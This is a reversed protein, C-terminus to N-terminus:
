GMSALLERANRLHTKVGATEFCDIASTICERAEADRRKVQHLRALGLYGEGASGIAGMEEWMRIAETFHAQSVAPATLLNRALFGLNRLVTTTRVGRGSDVMSLFVNGLITEMTALRLMAHNERWWPSAEEIMRMGETLEGLACKVLGLLIVSPTLTLESGRESSLEIVQGLYSGAEEFRGLQICAISLYVRPHTSPWPEPSVEISQQFCEAATVYDGDALCAEGKVWLGAALARVSPGSRALELLDEAVDFTAAADGKTWLGFGLACHAETIWIPDAALEPIAKRAHDISEELQGMEALTNALWVRACAETHTDGLALAMDLGRREHKLAQKFRERCDLTIGYIVQYMAHESTVGLSEALEEHKQLLAELERMNGRDYIVYGWRHLVEVLLRDEEASRDKDALMEYAQRYFEYSEEVAHRRFCKEASKMLWHVARDTAGALRYHIALTESFEPLRDAFFSELARGAREHLERRETRLLGAYAADQIMTHRFEFELAPELARVRILDLKQLAELRSEFAPDDTIQGLLDALFSRGLVSAELLVRRTPHDLRDLRAAVLGLIGLPVEVTSLDGSVVWSRNSRVLTGTEVLSNVLEELYFPNGEAKVQLFHRLSAPIEETELLSALMETAESSSLSKLRIEDLHLESPPAGAFLNLGPRFTVLHLVPVACSDILYRLLDLSSPDAWHLDGVYLVTSKHRARTSVLACMLAYFHRKWTESDAARLQPQELGFLIGACAAADEPAGSLASTGEEVKRRVASASDGNEIGWERALLETFPDYPVNQSYARASTELWEIAGLDLSEKFEDVLRSKGTGAEGRIAIVGRQGNRVATLGRSLRELEEDRGILRARVGRSRRATVPLARPAQVRFVRLDGEHGRVTHAGLDDFDFYGQTQVYTEEACVVEGPGALDLLRSAINITSGLAREGATEEDGSTVVVGTSVASHMVLPRGTVSQLERSKGEVFEHIALAAKIARVADDEHARPVGFLILACDGILKEIRGEYPEIIHAIGGFLENMVERLEEPDLQQSLSTYGCLDTFLVSVPSRRASEHDPSPARLSGGAPDARERSATRIDRQTEL